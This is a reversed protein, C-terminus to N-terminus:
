SDWDTDRRLDNMALAPADTQVTLEDNILDITQSDNFGALGDQYNKLSVVAQEPNTSMSQLSSELFSKQHDAFVTLYHKYQQSVAHEPRLESLKTQISTFKVIAAQLDNSVKEPQEIIPLTTLPLDYSDQRLQRLTETVHMFPTIDTLLGLANTVQSRRDISFAKCISVFRAQAKFRSFRVWYADFQDLKFILETSKQQANRILQAYAQSNYTSYISFGEGALQRVQSVFAYFKDEIDNQLSFIPYKKPVVPRTFVFVFVTVGILFFLSLLVLTIM